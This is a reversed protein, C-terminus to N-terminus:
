WRPYYHHRPFQQPYRPSRGYPYYYPSPQYPYWPDYYYPDYDPLPEWLKSAKVQIVPMRYMFEGIPRTAEGEVTGAVTMLKGSTYIAPDLFGEVRAMFRGGSASGEYPRGGRELEQDVIIILTDAKRNEVKAIKGGWRVASGTFKDISARVEGVSPNGFPPTRILSPASSTACGALLLMTTMSVWVRLM